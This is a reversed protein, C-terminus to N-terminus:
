RGVRINREPNGIINDSALPIAQLYKCGLRGWGPEPNKDPGVASPNDPCEM